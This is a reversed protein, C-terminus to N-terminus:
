FVTHVEEEPFEWMTHSKESICKEEWSKELKSISEELAKVRVIM